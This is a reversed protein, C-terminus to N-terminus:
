GGRLNKFFDKLITSCKDYEIYRYKIKFPQQCNELIQCNSLIVGAKKDLAGFVIQNIRSQLIAGLCMLCPELTIYITSNDLRWSGINKCADEIAVIEAHYLANNKSIRLNHGRGIIQNDKVIVAGVPVENKNYAKLAEKYAEELFKTDLNANM